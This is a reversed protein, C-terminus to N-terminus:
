SSDLTQGLSPGDGGRHSTGSTPHPPTSTSTWDPLGTIVPALWGLRLAVLHGRSAALRGRELQSGEVLPFHRDTTGKLTETWRCIPTM